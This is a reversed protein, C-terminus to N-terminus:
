FRNKHFRMQLDCIAQFMSLALSEQQYLFIFWNQQKLSLDFHNSGACGTPTMQLNQQTSIPFQEKLSKFTQQNYVLAAFVFNQLHQFLM